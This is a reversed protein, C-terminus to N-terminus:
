VRSLVLQGVRQPLLLLVAAPFRLAATAARILKSPPGGSRAPGPGDVLCSFAEADAVGVALREGVDVELVPRLPLHAHLPERAVLGAAHRRVEGLQRPQRTSTVSWCMPSRRVRVPKPVKSPLAVAFHSCITGSFFGSSLGFPEVALDSKRVVPLQRSARTAAIRQAVRKDAFASWPDMMELSLDSRSISCNTTGCDVTFRAAKIHGENM